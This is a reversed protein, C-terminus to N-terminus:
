PAAWDTLKKVPRKVLNFRSCVVDYLRGVLEEALPVSMERSRGFRGRSIVRCSIFSYMDLESLLDGFARGGLPKLGARACFAQYATYAEGTTFVRTGATRSAEITAALAAQLHPPANRMMTTYRDQEIEEAAADVMSLDITPKSQKEALYASKALLGVAKRADGHERSALAAIKEIVGEQLAGARLAKEVRIALIRKLDEADYPNFILENVKLFSQVRPDLHNSWDLRNSAFTLILKAPIRQPLRRVLFALFTDRELRVNDVEDIFLVLYGRYGQLADEIRLMLEDLSIGKQYRKSANLLCALDNLARFCPRPTALDLHVHRLPIRRKQCLETLLTLFFMMTLTKGTGTKGWLALHVPHDNRLVPGFHASIERLERDRVNGNFIEELVALQESRILQEDDLFRRNLVLDQRAVEELTGTVKDRAQM